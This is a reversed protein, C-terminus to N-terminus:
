FTNSYNDQMLKGKGYYMQDSLEPQNIVEFSTTEDFISLKKKKKIFKYQIIDINNNKAFLYAKEM